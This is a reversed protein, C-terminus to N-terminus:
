ADNQAKEAEQQAQREAIRQRMAEREAEREALLKEYDKECLTRLWGQLSKVRGHGGCEECILFSLQESMDILTQIIQNDNPDLDASLQVYYRLGGFKEKIQLVEYNPDLLSVYHHTFEILKQWGEGVNTKEREFTSTPQETM